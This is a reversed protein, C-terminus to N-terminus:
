KRRPCTKNLVVTTINTINLTFNLSRVHKFVCVCMCVGHVGATDAQSPKEEIATFCPLSLPGTQQKPLTDEM